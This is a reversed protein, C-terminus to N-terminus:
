SEGASRRLDLDTAIHAKPAPYLPGRNEVHHTKIKIRSCGQSTYFTMLFSFAFKNADEATDKGNGVYVAAEAM